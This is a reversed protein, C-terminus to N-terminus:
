IGILHWLPLVDKDRKALTKDGRQKLVTCNGM